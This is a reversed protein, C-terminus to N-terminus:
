PRVESGRDPALAPSIGPSGMSIPSRSGCLGPRSIPHMSPSSGASRRGRAGLPSRAPRPGEAPPEPRDAPGRALGHSSPIRPRAPPVAEEASVHAQHSVELHDFYEVPSIRLGWGSPGGPIRRTYRMGRLPGSGRNTAQGCITRQPPMWGRSRKGALASSSCGTATIMGEARTRAPRRLRM